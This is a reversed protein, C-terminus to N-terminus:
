KKTLKYGKEKLIYFTAFTATTAISYVLYLVAFILMCVVLPKVQKWSIVTISYNVIDMFYIISAAMFGLGVLCLRKYIKPVSKKIMFIAVTLVLSTIVTGFIIM